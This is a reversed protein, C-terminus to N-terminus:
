PNDEKAGNGVDYPPAEAVRLLAPRKESPRSAAHFAGLWCGRAEIVEDIEAMICITENLAVVIKQYRCPVRSM